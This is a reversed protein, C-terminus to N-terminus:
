KWIQDLDMQGGIVRMVNVIHNEEDVMYFVLYNDVPFYRLGRSYWPEKSYRRFGNPLTDLKLIEDQIRSLQAEANIISKKEYAIYDYHNQMDEIAEPAVIVKYTL